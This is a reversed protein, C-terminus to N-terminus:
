GGGGVRRDPDGLDDGVADLGLGGAPDGPDRRGVVLPDPDQVEDRREDEEQDAADLRQHHADLEARRVVREQRRVRVVREERQM